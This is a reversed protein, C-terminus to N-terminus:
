YFRKFAFIGLAQKVPMADLLKFVDLRYCPALKFLKIPCANQIIQTYRGAIPQFRQFTITGPLVADANVILKAHAKHPRAFPRLIDLNHVVM